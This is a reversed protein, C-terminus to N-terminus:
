FSFGVGGTYTLNQLTGGTYVRATEPEFFGEIYLGKKLEPISKSWFEPGSTITDRFDFRLFWRRDIFYKVGGGFQVGLKLIGGGELPPASGFDYLSVFLGINKMGYRFVGKRQKFPSDLLNILTLAPGVTVFPRLRSGKKTFNYLFNYAFQRIRASPNGINENNSNNFLNDKGMEIITSYLPVELHGFSYSFEHSFYKNQEVTTRFQLVWGPNLDNSFEFALKQPTHTSTLILGSFSDSAFTAGGMSFSLQVRSGYMKNEIPQQIYPTDNHEAVQKDTIVHQNAEKHAEYETDGTQITIVPLEAASKTKNQKKKILWKIGEGAQWALNGRIIDNRMTLFFNRSGKELASGTVPLSLRTAGSRYDRPNLCDNMKVVAIKGDTLLPEGTGNKADRPVWARDILTIGDVCGTFVLDNVIKARENDIHHDILHIFTRDHKSFAIGIDHTSSSTILTNGGWKEPLAWIRMHHRKAFTNFSKEYSLDPKKNDLLLTSMPAAGYGQNDSVARLTKYVTGSMMTESKVWGSANLGRELGIMSGIFLLNTIDSPLKKKETYTRYPLKRIMMEMSSNDAQPIAKGVSLAVTDHIDVVQNLMVFLETGVPLSIETEPIGLIAMSSSLSWMFMMPDFVTLGSIKGSARNIYTSTARVGKIRGTKDIKERSNDVDTVVGKIELMKGDPLKLQEFVIQIMATEHIIGAGIKHVATVKGSVATGIPLVYRNEIKVPAILVGEVPDGTKSQYSSLPQTLRIELVSGQPIVSTKSQAFCIISTCILSCFGLGLM